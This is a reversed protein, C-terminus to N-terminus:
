VFRNASADYAYGAAALSQKLAACDWEMDDCLAEPSAYGDRLKMNVISCLMAPDEPMQM